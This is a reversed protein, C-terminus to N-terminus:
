LKVGNLELILKGVESLNKKFELNELIVKREWDDLNAEMVEKKTKYKM